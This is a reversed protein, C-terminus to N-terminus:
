LSREIKHHKSQIMTKIKVQKLNWLGEIAMMWPLAFCAPLWIQEDSDGSQIDMLKNKEERLMVEKRDLQELRNRLFRVKDGDAAEEAAALSTEMESVKEVVAMIQQQVEQLPALSAM